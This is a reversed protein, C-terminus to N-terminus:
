TWACFQPVILISVGRSNFCKSTVFRGCFTILFLQTSYVITPLIRSRLNNCHGFQLQVCKTEFPFRFNFSFCTAFGPIFTFRSFQKICGTRIQFDLAQATINEVSQHFSLFLFFVQDCRTIVPVHYTEVDSLRTTRGSKTIEAGIPISNM